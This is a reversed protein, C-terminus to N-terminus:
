KKNKYGTTQHNGYFKEYVCMNNNIYSFMSYIQIVFYAKSINLIVAALDGLDIFILLTCYGKIRWIRIFNKAIKKM